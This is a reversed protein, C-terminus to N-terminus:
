ILGMNQAESILHAASRTGLKRAINRRHTFVTAPSIGLQLAILRSCLGNALHLVVEAERRTLPMSSGNPHMHATSDAPTPDRGALVAEVTRFLDAASDGRKVAGAYGMEKWTPLLGAQQNACLAIYKGTSRGNRLMRELPLIHMQLLSRDVLVLDATREQVQHLLDDMTTILEVVYGRRRELLAKLGEAFLRENSLILISPGNRAQMM